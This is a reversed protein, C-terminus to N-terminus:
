GPCVVYQNVFKGNECNTGQWGSSCVCQYGNTLSVCVADNLCPGTACFNVRTDCNTGEWGDTCFCRYETVEQGTFCVGGNVCPSSECPAM